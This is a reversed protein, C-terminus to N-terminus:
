KWQGSSIVLIVRSGEINIRFSGQLKQPSKKSLTSSAEKVMKLGGFKKNRRNFRHNCNKILHGTKHCLSCKFPIGWFDLRQSIKFGDWAIEIHDSYGGKYPKEILIWAIRKDKEGRCWPDVYIFKGISNGIETLTEISWLELPLNPLKVCILNNSPTNKLPDFGMYWRFLSLFSRGFIWPRILITELDSAKLFHFSYWEKMLRSIVPTYGILLAWKDTLWKRM